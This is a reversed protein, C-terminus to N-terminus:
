NKRLAKIAKKAEKPPLSYIEKPIVVRKSVQKELKSVRGKQLGKAAARAGGALTAGVSAGALGGVLGGGAAGGISGLMSSILRSGATTRLFDAFKSSEAAKEILKREEANYGAMRKKNRSLIRFQAKISTAPNDTKNAYDLIQQIDELKKAASWQSTATKLAEFGDKGGVVMGETPNYMAERLDDQLDSLDLGEPTMGALTREKQIMTTLKKDLKEAGALTLNKGKKKSLTEFIDEFLDKESTVKEGGIDALKEAKTILLDRAEPKLVGGVEDAKKYLDSSIGKVAEAKYIPEKAGTLPVDPGMKSAKKTAKAAGKIAPAVGPVGLPVVNGLERIAQFNRGARPNARNYAELNRDYAAAYPAVKEGVGKISEQLGEPLQRFGEKAALGVPAGIVDGLAGVEGMVAQAVTEQPSQEGSAAVIDALHAGREEMGGTFQGVAEGVRDLFGLGEQQEPLTPEPLNNDTGSGMSQVEGGFGTIADMQSMMDPTLTPAGMGTVADMNAIQEPTLPM